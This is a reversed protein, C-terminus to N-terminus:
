LIAAVVQLQLNSKGITRGTLPSSEQNGGKAPELAVSVTM